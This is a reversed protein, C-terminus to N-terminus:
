DSIINSTALTTGEEVEEGEEVEMTASQPLNYVEGSLIWILGGKGTKTTVNGQRDIQEEYTLESFLVEGSSETLLDKTAKETILNTKTSIEGIVQDKRFQENDNIFLTTGQTFEVKKENLAYDYLSLKYGSEM